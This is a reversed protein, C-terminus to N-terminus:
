HFLDKSNYTCLRMGTILGRTRGQVDEREDLLEQFRDLGNVELRSLGILFTRCLFGVAGTVFASGARWPASPQEPLSDDAGM